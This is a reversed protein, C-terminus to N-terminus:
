KIETQPYKRFKPVKQSLYFEHILIGLIIYTYSGYYKLKWTIPIVLVIKFSVSHMVTNFSTMYKM